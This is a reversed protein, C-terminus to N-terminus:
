CVTARGVLCVITMNTLFVIHPQILVKFLLHSTSNKTQFRAKLYCLNPNPTKNKPNNHHLRTSVLKSTETLTRAQVPSKHSVTHCSLNSCGQGKHRNAPLILKPQQQRGHSFGLPRTLHEHEWRSM